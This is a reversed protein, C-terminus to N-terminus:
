EHLPHPIMWAPRCEQDAALDVGRYVRDVLGRAGANDVAKEAIPRGRGHQGAVLSVASPRCWRRSGRADDVKFAKTDGVLPRGHTEVPIGVGSLPAEKEVSVDGIDDAE